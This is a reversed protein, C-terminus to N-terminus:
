MNPSLPAKPTTEAKTEPRGSSPPAALTAQDEDRGGAEDERGGDQEPRAAESGMAREIATEPSSLPGSSMAMNVSRWRRVSGAQIPRAKVTEIFRLKEPNGIPAANVPMM